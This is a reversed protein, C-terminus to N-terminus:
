PTEFLQCIPAFDKVSYPLDAKVHPQITLQSQGAFILTHGDPASSAAEGFAITGAAGPRNVVVAPQAFEATFQEAVVRALTDLVTGASFPVLIQIRQTPYTQGLVATGLLLMATVAMGVKLTVPTQRIEPM